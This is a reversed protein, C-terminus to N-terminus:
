ERTHYDQQSFVAKTYGVVSREGDRMGEIGSQQLGHAQRSWDHLPEIRQAAIDAGERPRREHSDGSARNQSDELVYLNTREGDSVCIACQSDTPARSSCLAIALLAYIVDRVCLESDQVIQEPDAREKECVHSECFAIHQSFDFTGVDCGEELKEDCIALVQGVARSQGRVDAPFNCAQDPVMCGEPVTHEHNIQGGM